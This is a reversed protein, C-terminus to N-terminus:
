PCFGWTASIFIALEDSFSFPTFRVIFAGFTTCARCPCSVKNAQMFEDSYSWHADKLVEDVYRCHRVAEYREKENMVTRGKFEHTEKDNCVTITYVHHKSSLKM